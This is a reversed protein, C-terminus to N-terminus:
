RAPAATPLTADCPYAACYEARMAAALRENAAFFEPSVAEIRWPAALALYGRGSSLDARDSPSMAQVLGTVMADRRQAGEAEYARDVIGAVVDMRDLAVSRSAESMRMRTEYESFRSAMRRVQSLEGATPPTGAYPPPASPPNFQITIIIPAPAPRGDLTQPTVNYKAMLESISREFNLGQPAVTLLQCGEMAGSLNYRCRVRVKGPIRAMRAFDPYAQAVDAATPQQVYRAPEIKPGTDCGNVFLAAAFGALTWIARMKM